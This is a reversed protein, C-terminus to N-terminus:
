RGWVLVVVGVVSAGGVGARELFIQQVVDAIPGPLWQDAFEIIHAELGGGFLTLVFFLLILLLALSLFVSYALGATMFSVNKESVDTYIRQVFERGYSLSVM